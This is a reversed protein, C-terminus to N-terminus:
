KRTRHLPRPWQFTVTEIPFAWWTGAMWGADELICQFDTRAYAFGLDLGHTFAVFHNHANSVEKLTQVGGNNGFRGWEEVTVVFAGDGPDVRLCDRTIHALEINALTGETLGHLVLFNHRNM